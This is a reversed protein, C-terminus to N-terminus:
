NVPCFHIIKHLRSQWHHPTFCTIFNDLLSGFFENERRLVITKERKGSNTNNTKDSIPPRIM